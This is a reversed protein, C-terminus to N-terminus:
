ESLFFALEEAFNMDGINFDEKISAFIDSTQLGFLSNGSIDMVLVGILLLLAALLRIKITGTAPTSSIDTPEAYPERAIRGPSTRGYLIQERSLLDYQDRNYQSRIQQVLKLKKEVTADSM